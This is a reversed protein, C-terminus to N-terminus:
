AMDLSDQIHYIKIKRWGIIMHPNRKWHSETYERPKYPRSSHGADALIKRGQESKEHSAKFKTEQEELRVLIPNNAEDVISQALELTDYLIQPEDYKPEPYPFFEEYDRQLDYGRRVVGYKVQM